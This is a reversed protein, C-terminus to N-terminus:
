GELGRSHRHLDLPVRCDREAGRSSGENGCAAAGEREREKGTSKCRLDIGAGRELLNSRAAPFFGDVLGAPIASLPPPTPLIASHAQSTDGRHM